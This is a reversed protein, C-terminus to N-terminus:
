TTGFSLLFISFHLSEVEWLVAIGGEIVEAAAFVEIVSLCADDRILGLFHLAM